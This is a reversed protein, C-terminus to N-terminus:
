YVVRFDKFTGEVEEEEVEVEKVVAMSPGKHCWDVLRKVKEEEGEVVAEVRGDWRNKVWGTLGLSQAMLRTNYRYFVGQVLGSIYLHRRVKM